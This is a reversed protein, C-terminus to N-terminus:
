ESSMEGESEAEAWRFTRPAVKEVPLRKATLTVLGLPNKADSKVGLKQMRIWIEEAHLPEGRAERLVQEEGKQFGIVGKPRGGRRKEPSAALQITSARGNSAGHLRLWGEYGKLLTLLVEKEEENREFEKKVEDLQQRVTNENM